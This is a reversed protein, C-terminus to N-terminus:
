PIDAMRLDNEDEDESSLSDENNDEALAAIFPVVVGSEAADDRSETGKDPLGDGVKGPFVKILPTNLPIIARVKNWMSKSIVGTKGSDIPSCNDDRTYNSRDLSRNGAQIFLM